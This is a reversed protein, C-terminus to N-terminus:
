SEAGPDTSAYAQDREIQNSCCFLPATGRAAPNKADHEMEAHCCPNNGQYCEFKELRVGSREKGPELSIIVPEDCRQRDDANTGASGQKQM